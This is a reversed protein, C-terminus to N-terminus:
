RRACFQGISINWILNSNRLKWDFKMQFAGGVEPNQWESNLLLGVLGPNVIWAPLLLIFRLYVFLSGGNHMQSDSFFFCYACCSGHIHQLVFNHQKKALFFWQKISKGVPVYRTGVHLVELTVPVAYSYNCCLFPM